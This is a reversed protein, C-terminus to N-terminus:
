CWDSPDSPRTVKMKPVKRKGLKRVKTPAGQRLGVSQKAGFASKALGRGKKDGDEAAVSIFPAPTGPVRKPFLPPVAVAPKRGRPEAVRLVTKGVDATAGARLSQPTTGRTAAAGDISDASAVGWADYV